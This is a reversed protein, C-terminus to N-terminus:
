DEAIKLNKRKLIKLAGLALLALAANTTPEPVKKVSAKPMYYTPVPIPDPTAVPSYSHGNENENIPNSATFSQPNAAQAQSMQTGLTVPFSLLGLGVCGIIKKPNQYSM